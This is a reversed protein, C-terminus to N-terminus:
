AAALFTAPINSFGKSDSLRLSYLTLSNKQDVIHVCCTRRHIGARPNKQLNTRRGNIHQRQCPGYLDSGLGGVELPGPSIGDIEPIKPENEKSAWLFRVL